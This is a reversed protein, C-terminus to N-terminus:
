ITTMLINLYEFVKLDGTLPDLFSGSIPSSTKVLWFFDVEEAAEVAVACGVLSTLRPAAALKPMGLWAGGGGEEELPSSSM